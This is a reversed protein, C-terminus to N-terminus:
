TWNLRNTFGVVDANLVSWLLEEKAIPGINLITGVKKGTQAMIIEMQKVGNIKKMIKVNMGMTLDGRLIVHQILLPIM